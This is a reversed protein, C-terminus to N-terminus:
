ATRPVAPECWGSWVLGTARVCVCVRMYVVAVMGNTDGQFLLSVAEEEDGWCDGARGVGVDAMCGGRVGERVCVSVRVCVEAIMRNTDGQFLLNLAEEEDRAQRTSLNRLHINCDSDEMLTIKRFCLLSVCDLKQADGTADRCHDICNLHQKEKKSVQRQPVSTDNECM